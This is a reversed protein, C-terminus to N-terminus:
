LCMVTHSGFKGVGDIGRFTGATSLNTRILPIYEHLTLLFHFYMWEVLMWWIKHVDGCRSLPCEYIIM